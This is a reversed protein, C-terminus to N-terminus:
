NPVWGTQGPGVIPKSVCERQRKAIAPWYPSAMHGDMHADVAWYFAVDANHFSNVFLRWVAVVIHGNNESFNGLCAVLAPGQRIYQSLDWVMSAAGAPGGPAERTGCFAPLGLLGELCRGHTQGELRSGECRAASRRCGWCARWAGGRAGPRLAGAAGAPGGPPEGRVQGCLAPLGLLGELCRRAGPRLAGAAGAPGGPVERTDPGGPPEEAAECGPLLSRLGLLGELRRWAGPRLAGAAGAPGGPAGTDPPQDCLRCGWCARWAAGRVQDCLAAAGAPGLREGRVQGCLAAPLGLCSWAGGTHRARWAAGRAGPRLAGAAGAPGGPAEGRVQDCLAPLGLLGELRRGHTQGEVRRGAGVRGGAGCSSGKDTQDGAASAGMDLRRAEGAISQCYQATIVGKHQGSGVGKGTGPRWWGAQGTAMFIEKRLQDKVGKRNDEILKGM